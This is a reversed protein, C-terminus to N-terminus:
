GGTQFIGFTQSGLNMGRSNISAPAACGLFDRNARKPALNPAL